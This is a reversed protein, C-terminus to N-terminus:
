NVSSLLSSSGLRTPDFRLISRGALRMEDFLGAGGSMFKRECTEESGDPCAIPEGSGDHGPVGVEIAKGM